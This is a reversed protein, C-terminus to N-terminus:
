TRQVSLSLQLADLCLQMCRWCLTTVNHQMCKFLQGTGELLSHHPFPRASKTGELIPGGTKGQRVLARNLKVLLSQHLDRTRCDVMKRLPLQLDYAYKTRPASLHVTVNHHLHVNLGADLVAAKAQIIVLELRCGATDWNQPLCLAPQRYALTTKGLLLKLGSTYLM